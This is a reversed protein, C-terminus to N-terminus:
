KCGGKKWAEIIRDSQEFIEKKTKAKPEVIAKKKVPQLMQKKYNDFGVFNDKNMFLREFNWMQFLREDTQKKYAEPILEMVM